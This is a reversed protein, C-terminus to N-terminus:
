GAQEYAEGMILIFVLVLWCLLPGIIWSLKRFSRPTFWLWQSIGFLAGTILIAVFSINLATEHSTHYISIIPEHIGWAVLVLTSLILSTVWFGAKRAKTPLEEQALLLSATSTFLGVPACCITSMYVNLLETSGVYGNFRDTVSSVVAMFLYGLNMSIIIAFGVAFGRLLMSTFDHIWSQNEENSM